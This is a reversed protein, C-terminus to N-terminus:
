TSCLMVPPSPSGTAPYCLHAVKIHGDKTDGWERRRVPHEEEQKKKSSCISTLCGKLRTGAHVRSCNDESRQTVSWAWVVADCRQGVPRREADGVWGDM